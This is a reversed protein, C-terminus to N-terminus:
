GSPIGGTGTPGKDIQHGTGPFEGACFPWSTMSAAVSNRAPAAARLLGSPESGYVRREM